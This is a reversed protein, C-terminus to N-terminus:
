GTIERILGRCEAAADRQRLEELRRAQSDIIEARLAQDNLVRAILGALVCPQMDDFLVGAGHMAEPMGGVARAVVPTRYCMAELLPLCYGEHRSTSVFVDAAAYCGALQAGTLFREFCVNALGLRGALMRLMAYYRPCSRESGALILRSAANICRHYWAFALILDEVCKNPAMRGVFLINRPGGGYRAVTDADPTIRFGEPSFFLPVVRVSDIGLTRVQGANFESVAWVDEAEGAVAKLGSLGDALKVAVEDDYGEFYEAPTINHYRVIKRAASAAFADSAPSAISYHYVAIDGPVARYRTLPLCDRSVSPGIGGEAVFIDSPMGLGRVIARFARAERSIADGDAYGALLQDVRPTAMAM